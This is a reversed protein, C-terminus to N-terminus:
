LLEQQVEVPESERFVILQEPQWWHTIVGTCCYLATHTDLTTGCLVLRADCTPCHTTM